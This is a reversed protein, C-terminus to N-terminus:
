KMMWLLERIRVDCVRAWLAMGALYVTVGVAVLVFMDACLFRRTALMACLMVASAAFYGLLRWDIVRAEAILKRGLVCMVALGVGEAVLTGIVAGNQAFRPILVTNAAFNCVAAVAVAATYWAERRNSYLIQMGVFQACGVILIIPSLLRMSLGADAFDAGAFLRVFGDAVPVLGASCPVALFLMFHLSKSLNRRYSALDGTEINNALRPAMVAGLSTVVSIVIRVIKNATTYLGTARDGCIAGVMTVDLHLYVSTAAVAAFVTLTPRIHQRVDMGRFGLRVYKRLRVVNFVTGIGNMGVLIAAYMVVNQATRVLTFIAVLQVFKVLVFRRTIYAQDEIGVYFWEYSFTQLIISPAVVAFLLNERRMAPVFGMAAVYVALCVACTVCLMATIGSVAASLRKSEDRIRAVARIGYVPIGLAAFLVFYSVVSNVFEVRGIGDPGLVRSVYPFVVAPILLNLVLRVNSLMFNAKVSRVEVGYKRRGREIYNRCGQTPNKWEAGCSTTGHASCRGCVSPMMGCPKCFREALRVANKRFTQAIM